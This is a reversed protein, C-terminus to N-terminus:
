DVEELLADARELVAMFQDETVKSMTLLMVSDGRRVYAIRVDVEDVVTERGSISDQEYELETEVRFGFSEDGIGALDLQEGELADKGLSTFQLCGFASIPAFDIATDVGSSYRAISQGVTPINVDESDSPGHFEVSVGAEVATAVNTPMCAFYTPHGFPPDVNAETFGEPLDSETLLAPTLGGEPLVDSASFSDLDTGSIITISEESEFHASEQDDDEGGGCAAMTLVLLPALLFPKM